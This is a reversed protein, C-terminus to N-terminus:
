ATVPSTEIQEAKTEAQARAAIADLTQLEAMKTAAVAYDIAAIADAEKDSAYNEAQWAEFKSKKESADKKIQEFDANVKAHLSEFRTRTEGKAEEFRQKVKGLAQETEHRVQDRKQEIRDRAETQAKSVRDEANKAQVSLEGLKQSLPKM